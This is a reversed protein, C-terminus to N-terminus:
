NAEAKADAPKPPVDSEWSFRAYTPFELPSEPSEIARQRLDYIDKQLATRYNRVERWQTLFEDSARGSRDEAQMGPVLQQYAQQLREANQAEFSAIEAAYAVPMQASQPQLSKDAYTTFYALYRSVPLQDASGWIQMDAVNLLQETEADVIMVTPTAFYHPQGFRRTISRLDKFYGVDVFVIEYHAALLDAVATENFTSALGRSDHCWQAGMVLLLRKDSNRARDLAAQVDGTPDTSEMYVSDSSNPPNGAFVACTIAASLLLSFTLSFSLFYRLVAPM